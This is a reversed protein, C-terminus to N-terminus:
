SRPSEGEGDGGHRRFLGGAGQHRGHASDLRGGADGGAVPCRRSHEFPCLDARALERGGHRSSARWWSAFGRRRQRTGSDAACCSEAWREAQRQALAEHILLAALSTLGPGRSPGASAKDKTPTQPPWRRAPAPSWRGLRARHIAKKRLCERLAQAVQELAFLRLDSLGAHKSRGPGRIRAARWRRTSTKRM